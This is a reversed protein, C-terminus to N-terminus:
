KALLSKIKKITTELPDFISYSSLEPRDKVMRYIAPFETCGIIVNKLKSSSILNVFNDGTSKSIKNQKVDEILDRLLHYEDEKPSIIEVGYKSLTSQYIQSEITGESALLMFKNDSVQKLDNGLSDIINVFKGKAKPCKKEIDSLFVHSTNCALVLIDAGSDLLHETSDVLNSLVLDYNENYLIARVRSPMTSRNDILIRPRDWEKEAPFSSVLRYFFDCTAFSGMGGIIGISKDYKINPLNMM